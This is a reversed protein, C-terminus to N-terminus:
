HQLRNPSWCGKSSIAKLRKGYRALAPDHNALPPYFGWTEECRHIGTSELLSVYMSLEPPFGEIGLRPESAKEMMAQILNRRAAAATSSLQRRNVLENLLRPTHPYAKECAHSVLVQLQRYSGLRVQEGQHYWIGGEAAGRPRLLREWESVFAHTADLLRERVERSAVRDNLLEPTEDQVWQLCELAVAAEHLADTELSIGM